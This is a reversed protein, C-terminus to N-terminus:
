VRAEWRERSLKREKATMKGGEGLIAVECSEDRGADKGAGGGVGVEGEYEGALARLVGAHCHSEEYFIALIGHVM